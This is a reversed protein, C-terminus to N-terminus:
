SLGLYRMVCQTCGLLSDYAYARLVAGARHVESKATIVAPVRGYAGMGDDVWVFGRSVSLGGVSVQILRANMAGVLVVMNAKSKSFPQVDHCCWFESCGGTEGLQYGGLDTCFPTLKLRQCGGWQGWFADVDRWRYEAFEVVM